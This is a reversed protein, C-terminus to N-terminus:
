MVNRLNDDVFIVTRDYGVYSICMEGEDCEDTAILIPLNVEKMIEFIQENTTDAVIQKTTTPSRWTHVEEITYPIGLKDLSESIINPVGYQDEDKSYGNLYFGCLVTKM